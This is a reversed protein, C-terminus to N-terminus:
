PYLRPLVDPSESRELAVLLRRIFGAVDAQIEEDPNNAVFQAVRMPGVASPETFDERLIEVALPLDRRALEAAREGLSM